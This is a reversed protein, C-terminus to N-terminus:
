KAEVKILKHKALQEIFKQFDKSARDEDVDYASQIARLIEEEKKKSNLMKWMRTGTKNLTFYDQTDVDLIVIEEDIERWIVNKCPSITRKRFQAKIMM